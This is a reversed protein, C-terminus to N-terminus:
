RLVTERIDLAKVVAAYSMGQETIKKVAALRFDRNFTRRKNM